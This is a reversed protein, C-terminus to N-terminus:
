VVILEADKLKVQGEEPKLLIVVAAENVTVLAEQVVTTV